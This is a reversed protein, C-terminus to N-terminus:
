QRIQAIKLILNFWFALFNRSYRTVHTRTHFGGSSIKDSVYRSHRTPQNGFQGTM